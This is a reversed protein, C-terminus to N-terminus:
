VLGLPQMQEIDAVYHLYRRQGDMIQVTLLLDIDLEGSIAHKLLNRKQGNWKETDGGLESEHDVAFLFEVDVDLLDFSLRLKPMTLSELDGTAEQWRLRREDSVNKLAVVLM